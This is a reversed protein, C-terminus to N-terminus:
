GESLTVRAFARRGVQLVYSAGTKLKKDRVEVRIGEVRVAGQDILRYAASTSSALQAEKLVAAVKMEHSSAFVVVEPLNEPIAGHSFRTVFRQRAAPGAGAGHVRTFIEEALDFKADLPNLGDGVSDKLSAVDQSSRFSLLDFYRWMLTDSISMLKGFMDDPPEQIGIYNGLSKSMKQM